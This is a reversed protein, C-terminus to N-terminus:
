NTAPVDEKLYKDFWDLIRQIYDLQHARELLGHPERPYLVIGSPVGKIRLATYLQISQEPHVRTDALGHGVLIATKTKNIHAIPSRDWALGPDDFWWTDWHVLTMEYPIETTGSFSIWNSIGAYPIAAKFHESYRMGALASFYGGYSTGSIGVREPDILGLEALHEIGKIVDVFEKGGLDRHDGKAFAVGRGGSGRYNPMLVLYGNAALIQAPYLASTNWGDFSIGEPGGHPLIALPYRVGPTEDLPHILVGEIRWGDAGKWEITEQDALEVGALWSNHTTVRVFRGRRDATYVERPHAATNVATAFTRHDGDFSVGGFIEAGGGAMREIEGRDARIRNLAARTGEAAVFYVTRNDLWGIDQTSGEYEPTLNVAEGGAAPVVFVSQALPDNMSVAGAFAFSKGDPAFAMDGLKGRTETLIELDGGEVSVAYIKRFMYGADIDATETVQVAFGGGDPRWVFSRVTRDDPTAARREGTELNEVWLRVHREGEGAVQADDGRARREAVEEPVPERATYAILGGDPSWAYSMVGLPSHTLQKVEGGAAPVGYVQTRSDREVFRATFALTKGDPSWRPSGASMPAEVIPRPAGGAAAVLWLESRPRGYEEDAARPVSLTFAILGGDPSMAVSGVQEISVVQEPTIAQARLMAPTSVVLMATTMLAGLLAPQKRLHARNM